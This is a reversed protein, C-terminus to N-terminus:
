PVRKLWAELTDPGPATFFNFFPNTPQHRWLKGARDLIVLDDKAIGHSGVVNKAPTDQLLPM